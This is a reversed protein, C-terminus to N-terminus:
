LVGLVEKICSPAKYTASMISRIWVLLHHIFIFAFFVRLFIIVVGVRFLFSAILFLYRYLIFYTIPRRLLLVLVIPPSLIKWSELVIFAESCGLWCTQPSSWVANLASFSCCLICLRFYVLIHSQLLPIILHVDQSLLNWVYRPSCLDQSM